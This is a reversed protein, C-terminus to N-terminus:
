TLLFKHLLKEIAIFAANFVPHAILGAPITPRGKLIIARRASGGNLCALGLAGLALVSQGPRKCVFLLRARFAFAPFLPAGPQHGQYPQDHKYDDYSGAYRYQHLGRL